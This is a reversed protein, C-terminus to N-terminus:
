RRSAYGIIAGSKDHLVVRHMQAYAIIPELASKRGSAIGIAFGMALRVAIFPISPSSRPTVYLPGAAASGVSRRPVREVPPPLAQRAWAGVSEAVVGLRPRWATARGPWALQEIASSGDCM